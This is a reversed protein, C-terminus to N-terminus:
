ILQSHLYLIKYQYTMNQRMLMDSAVTSTESSQQCNAADLTNTESLGVTAERVTDSIGTEVSQIINHVNQGIPFTSIEATSKAPRHIVSQTAYEGRSDKTLLSSTAQNSNENTGTENGQLDANDDSGPHKQKWIPKTPLNSPLHGFSTCKSCLPMNWQLKMTRVRRNFHLQNLFHNLHLYKLSAILMLLDEANAANATAKDMHIPTGVLSAIRSIIIRSWLKLHLTPFRVLISVSSLLDREVKVNM